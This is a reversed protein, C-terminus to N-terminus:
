WLPFSSKQKSHSDKECAAALIGRLDGGFRPVTQELEWVVGVDVCDKPGHLSWDYAIVAADAKWGCCLSTLLWWIVQNM